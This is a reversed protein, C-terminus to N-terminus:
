APTPTLGHVLVKTGSDFRVEIKTTAVDRLVVGVGFTKHSLWTGVSFKETTSYLVIRAHDPPALPPEPEVSRASTARSSTSRPARTSTTSASAVAAAGSKPARYNHVGYCTRCEVKAPKNNVVAVIKHTLDLKCKTCYSDIEQGARYTTM